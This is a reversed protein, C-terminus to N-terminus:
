TGSKRFDILTRGGKLGRSESNRIRSEVFKGVAPLMWIFLIGKSSVGSMGMAGTSELFRLIFSTSQHWCGAFILRNCSPYCFM